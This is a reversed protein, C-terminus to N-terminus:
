PTKKIIAQTVVVQLVDVHKTRRRGRRWGLIKFLNQETKRALLITKDKEVNDIGFSYFADDVLENQLGYDSLPELLDILHQFQRPDIIGLSDVDWHVPDSIEHIWWNMDEGLRAKCWTLKTTPKSM